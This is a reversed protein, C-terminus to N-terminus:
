SKRPKKLTMVTRTANMEDVRIGATGFFKVAFGFFKSMAQKRVPLPLAQMKNIVNSILNNNAM